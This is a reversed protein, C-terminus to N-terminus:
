LTVTVPTGAPNTLTATYVISGGEAVTRHRTLSLGTNDVSDTITTVAPTPNPVLNEFNGGTAGTITTSVTSGNNYVDNAPTPVNVTGTTQGADITIISGNVLDRHGANAAPNTLTATYTIQGGEVVSGTATLTLGTTDVSDTITTVAPTPNPVLNEFNGGTAGTITTSVTSGNNYVDNAPTPM